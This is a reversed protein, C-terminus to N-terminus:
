HCGLVLQGAAFDSLACSIHSKDNQDTYATTVLGLGTETGAGIWHEGCLLGLAGLPILISGRTLEGFSRIAKLPFEINRM